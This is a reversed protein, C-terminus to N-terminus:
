RRIYGMHIITVLGNSGAYQPPDTCRQKFVRTNHWDTVTTRHRHPHNKFLDGMRRRGRNFGSYASRAYRESDFGVTAHGGCRTRLEYHPTAAVYRNGDHDRERSDWLRVHYRTDANGDHSARQAGDRHCGGGSRVWQPGGDQNSGWRHYPLHNSVRRATAHTGLFAVTVPDLADRCQDGTYSYLIRHHTAAADPALGLGLACVGLAAAASLRAAFSRRVGTM